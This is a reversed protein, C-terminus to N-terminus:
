ILKEIKKYVFNLASKILKEIAEALKDIKLLRFLLLRAKDILICVLFISLAIVIVALALLVFNFGAIYGGIKSILHTRVYINDHILYVSFASTAFFSIAPALSPKCDIKSFVCFLAIAMIVILPSVYKILLNSHSSVISIPIIGFILKSLLALAFTALFVLMWIKKSFLENLKYKKIIAGILYIFVFWLVSYGRLLSFTDYITSVTCFLLFVMAFVFTLRPTLKQVLLNLFPTLLFLGVYASFFWYGNLITPLFSKALGVIGLPEIKFIVFIFFISVSYFLVTFMLSLLNKLKPFYNKGKFGVFGSILIFCNVAPYFLIELFWTAASSLPSLGGSLIGGHGLIHLFVVGMMSAIRLVDIGLNRTSNKM